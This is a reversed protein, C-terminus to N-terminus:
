LDFSELWIIKTIALAKEPPSSYSVFHKLYRYKLWTHIRKLSVEFRIWVVTIHSNQKWGEFLIETTFDDGLIKLLKASLDKYQRSYIQPSFLDFVRCKLKVYMVIVWCLGSCFFFFMNLNFEWFIVAKMVEAEGQLPPCLGVVCM